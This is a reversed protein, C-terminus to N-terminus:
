LARCGSYAERQPLKLPEHASDLFRAFLWRLSENYTPRSKSVRTRGDRFSLARSALLGRHGGGAVAYTCCLMGVFKLDVSKRETENM